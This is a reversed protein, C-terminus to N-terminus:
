DFPVPPGILPTKIPGAAGVVIVISNGGPNMLPNVSRKWNNMLWINGSPDIQGGTIRELSDSQYGTSPSIPIGTQMGPPCKLTDVGCFRSIGTPVSGANPPPLVGFNFVWVTDDGDVAIGWPLTLGGGSYPSDASPTRTNMDYLTISPNTATGLSSVDAPCPGDVWDSNAVWINGQIDAANGMPHTLVTNGNYVAPLTAVLQGNPSIVSVNPSHNDNVWVNGNLDIALGFPKKDVTNTSTNLSINIAQTPDGGPIETVSSNACNAIWINGHVDSITAQPWSINAQTYGMSGSIPLGTPYFESVSNNPSAQPLLTCPPDQFGFNGVWVNGSPDLTIGYGAGSLGGGFYPSGPFNAGWPYFKMLRLGACAFSGTPNPVYNDNVWAYGKADIAVNGPGDMLNSSAQESYFGGTFKLFLLWSTPRQTLTPQFVPDMLSLQYIPDDADTPYNPYSPNKVLNALAQLVNLPASGGPPTAATFLNTCNANTDVCAAVVNALSYYTALTSTENGNPTSALVLGVEGTQPDALNAAMHVANFMGYQNGEIVDGNIFQAFANATAVTTLENVVVSDPTDNDVGIASALMSNGNSAEIFLPPNQNSGAYIEPYTILFNGEVDSVTSGLLLWPMQQNSNSAYLSVKYNAQGTGGGQVKGQLTLNPTNTDQCAAILLIISSLTVVVATKFAYGSYIWLKSLIDCDMVTVEKFM